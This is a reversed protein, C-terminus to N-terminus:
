LFVSRSSTCQHFNELIGVVPINAVFIVLESVSIQVHFIKLISVVIFMLFHPLFSLLHDYFRHLSFFLSNYFPLSLFPTYFLIFLHSWSLIQVTTMMFIKTVWFEHKLWQAVLDVM